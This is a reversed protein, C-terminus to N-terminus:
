VNRRVANARARARACCERDSHTMGMLAPTGSGRNHNMTENYGNFEVRSLISRVWTDYFQFGYRSGYRGSPFDDAMISAQPNHSLATVLGDVLSAAGFLMAGARVDHFEFKQVDVQSGWHAVGKNSLWVKFSEFTMWAQNGGPENTNRAHRGSM